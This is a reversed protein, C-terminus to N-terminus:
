PLVFMLVASTDGVVFYTGAVSTDILSVNLQGNGDARYSKWGVLRPRQFPELCLGASSSCKQSDPLRYLFLRVQESPWFGSFDVSRERVQYSPRQQFAIIAASLAQGSQEGTFTLGYRGPASNVPLTSEWYFVIASSATPNTYTEEQFGGPFSVTVRIREVSGWQCIHLGFSRGPVVRISNKVTIPDNNTEIPELYASPTNTQCYKQQVPSIPISFFTMEELIDEPLLSDANLLSFENDAVAQFGAPEPYSVAPTASLTVTPSLSPVLTPSPTFTPVATLPIEARRNSTTATQAAVETPTELNDKPGVLSTIVPLAPSSYAKELEGLRMNIGIGVALVGLIGIVFLIAHIANRNRITM